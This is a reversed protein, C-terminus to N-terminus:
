NTWDGRFHDLLQLRREVDGSQLEDLAEVFRLAMAYTSDITVYKYLGLRGLPVLGPIEAAARLYRRFRDDEWWVPYMRVGDDVIERLVVSPGEHDGGHHIVGFSTTRCVPTEAWPTYLWAFPVGDPARGLLAGDSTAVEEAEVRYGRWELAGFRHGLLDDIPGTAVVLDAHLAGADTAVTLARPGDQALATVTVGYRVDFGDLLQAFLPEFGGDPYYHPAVSPLRFDGREAVRDLRRLRGWDAPMDELRRGWFKRNFGAFALETLTPGVSSELYDRLSGDRPPRGAAEIAAVERAIAAGCPLQALSERDVPFPIAPYEARLRTGQYVQREQLRLFRRLFPLAEPTGRFVSVVRPGYEYPLGNPTRFTRLMGGPAPAQELITIRARSGFRERLLWATCAGAFGAGIVVVEM